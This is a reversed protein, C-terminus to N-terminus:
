KAHMCVVFSYVKKSCSTFIQMNSKSHDLNPTSGKMHLSFLLVHVVHVVYVVHVHVMLTTTLHAFIILCVALCGWVCVDTLIYNSCVSFM